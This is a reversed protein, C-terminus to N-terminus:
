GNVEKVQRNDYHKRNSRRPRSISDIFRQAEHLFEDSKAEAPEVDGSILLMRLCIVIIIKKSKSEVSNSIFM